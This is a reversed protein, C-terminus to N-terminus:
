DARRAVVKAFLDAHRQKGHSLAFVLRELIGREVVGGVCCYDCLNGEGLWAAEIAIGREFVDVFDPGANADELGGGFGSGTHRFPEGIEGLLAVPLPRLASLRADSRVISSWSMKGM